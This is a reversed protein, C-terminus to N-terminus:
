FSEKGCFIIERVTVERCTHM